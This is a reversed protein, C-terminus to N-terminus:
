WLFCSYFLVFHVLCSKLCQVFWVPNHIKLFLFCMVHAGHNAKIKQRADSKQSQYLPTSGMPLIFPQDWQASFASIPTQPWQYIQFKCHLNDSPLFSFPSLHPLLRCPHKGWTKVSTQTAYICSSISCYLGILSDSSFFTSHFHRPKHLAPFHQFHMQFWFPSLESLVSLWAKPPLFM